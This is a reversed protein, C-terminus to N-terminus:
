KNSPPAEASPVLTGAWVYLVTGPAMGLLTGLIMHRPELGTLGLVAGPLGRLTGRAQRGPQAFEANIRVLDSGSPLGTSVTAAMRFVWPWPSWMPPLSASM